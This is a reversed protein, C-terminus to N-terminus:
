LTHTGRAPEPLAAAPRSCPPRTGTSAVPTFGEGFGSAASGRQRGATGEAGVAAASHGSIRGDIPGPRPRPALTEDRGTGDRGPPGSCPTDRSRAEWPRLPWKQGQLEFPGRPLAAGSLGPYLSCLATESAGKVHYHHPARGDPSLNLTMM